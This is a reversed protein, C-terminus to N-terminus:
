FWGESRCNRTAGTGLYIQGVAYGREPRGVLAQEEVRAGAGLATGGCLVAYAGISCGAGVEVPRVTGQEDAPVFLAYSSIQATDDALLLGSALETASVAMGPAFEHTSVREEKAVTVQKWSADAFRDPFPCHSLSCLGQVGQLRGHM